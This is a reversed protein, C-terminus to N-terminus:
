RLKNQTWIVSNHVHPRQRESVTIPGVDNRCCYYNLLLKKYQITTIKLSCKLSKIKVASSMQFIQNTTKCMTIDDLTSWYPASHDSPTLNPGIPDSKTGIPDSQTILWVGKYNFIRAVSWTLHQKLSVNAKSYLFQSFGPVISLSWPSNKGNSTNSTKQVV